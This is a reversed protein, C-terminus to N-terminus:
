TRRVLDNIAQPSSAEAEGSLIAMVQARLAPDRRAIELFIPVRPFGTETRLCDVERPSIGFERAVEKVPAGSVANAIGRRLNVVLASRVNVNSKRRSLVREETCQIDTGHAVTPYAPSRHTKPFYVARGAPAVYRPPLTRRNSIM